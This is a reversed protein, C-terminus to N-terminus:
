VRCGTVGRAGYDCGKRTIELFDCVVWSGGLFKGPVVWSFVYGLLGILIKYTRIKHRCVNSVKSYDKTRRLMPLSMLM